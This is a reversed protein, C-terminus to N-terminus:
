HKMASSNVKMEFRLDDRLQWHAAYQIDTLLLGLHSCANNRGSTM